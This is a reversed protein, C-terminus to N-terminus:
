ASMIERCFPCTHGHRRLDNFCSRCTWHHSPPHLHVRDQAEQYCVACENEREEEHEAQQDQLAMEKFGSVAEDFDVELEEGRSPMGVSQCGKCRRRRASRWQNKTFEGAEKREKCAFCVRGTGESRPLRPALPIRALLSTAGRAVHPSARVLDALKRAASLFDEADAPLCVDLYREMAFLLSAASGREAAVRVEARRRAAELDDRYTARIGLQGNLCVVAPPLADSCPPCLRRVEVEASGNVVRVTEHSVGRLATSNCVSCCFGSLSIDYLSRLRGWQNQVRVLLAEDAGRGALLEEVDSRLPLTSRVENGEPLLVRLPLFVRRQRQREVMGEMVEGLNGRDRDLLLCAVTPEKGFVLLWMGDEEKLGEMGEATMRALLVSSERTCCRVAGFRGSAVRREFIPVERVSCLVEVGRSDFELRWPGEMRVREEECQQDLHILLAAMKEDTDVMSPSEIVGSFIPGNAYSIYYKGRFEERWEVGGLVSEAQSQSSLFRAARLKYPPQSGIERRAREKADRDEDGLL